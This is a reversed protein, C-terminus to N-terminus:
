SATKSVLIKRTKTQHVIGRLWAKCILCFYDGVGRLFVRMLLSPMAAPHGLVEVRLEGHDGPLFFKM